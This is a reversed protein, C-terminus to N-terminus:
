KTEVNPKVEEETINFSSKLDIDELKEGSPTEVSLTSERESFRSSSTDVDTNSSHDKMREKIKREANSSAFRAKAQSKKALAKIQDGMSDALPKTAKICSLIDETTFDTKGKDAGFRKFMADVVAQEIESGTFNKATASLLELDYNKPDRGRKKIHISFIDAREEETPISLYFLEDFRGKRLLEPPLQEIDNATAIVFVPKEKDQMWSLLTGLVRSSTGGDTVGSSKSGSLSKEIEDVFLISPSVGEVMKLADRMNKESSGVIGGMVKGVDLKVVPRKWMNGIAKAILSKGVGPIGLLLVGKPDPLGFAKAEPSQTEGRGNLWEKVIDCGGVDDFTINGPKWYELVKGKKIIQEKEELIINPDITNKVVLSKDCVNFIEPTTLGLCSDIIKDLNKEIFDFDYNVKTKKIKYVIGNIDNRIEERNKFDYDIITMEKELYSPVCHNPSTIMICKHEASLYCSMDRIMRIVQPQKDDLAFDLDHMILIVSKRIRRGTLQPPKYKFLWELTTLPDNTSNGDYERIFGEDRLKALKLGQTVSWTYLEIKEDNPVHLDMGNHTMKSLGTINVAVDTRFRQEEHTTIYILPYKSLYLNKVDNITGM